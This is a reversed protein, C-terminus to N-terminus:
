NSGTEQNYGLVKSISRACQIAAEVFLERERIGRSLPVGIVIAAVIEGESNLIPTSFGAADPTYVGMTVSIGDKRIGSLIKDLEIRDTITNETSRELTVAEFYKQRVAEPLFALFLRGCASSYLPRKSGIPVSYRVSKQTEASDIYTLNRQDADLVALLVTEGSYEMTKELYPRAIQRITRGALITSALAYAESGLFYLSGKRQLFGQDTLAKLTTSLSSKPVDLSAAVASLNLGGPEEALLRLLAFARPLVM